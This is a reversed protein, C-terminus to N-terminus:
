FWVLPATGHREFCDAIGLALGAYGPGAVMEAYEFLSADPADRTRAQHEALLAAFENANSAHRVDRFHRDIGLLQFFLLVAVDFDDGFREAERADGHLIM